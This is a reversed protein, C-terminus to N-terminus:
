LSQAGREGRSPLTWGPPSFQGPPSQSDPSPLCLVCCPIALTGRSMKCAHEMEIQAIFRNHSYM